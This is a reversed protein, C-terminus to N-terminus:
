VLREKEMNHLIANIYQMSVKKYITANGLADLIEEKTYKSLWTNLTELENQSLLRGFETEFIEFIGKDVFEYLLGDQFLGDISFAIAGESMRIGLYSRNVLSQITSDVVSVDFDTRSALEELTIQTGLENLFDIMLIIVVEHASLKLVGLNELVWDRRSVYPKNWWM